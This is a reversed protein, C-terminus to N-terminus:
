YYTLPLTLASTVITFLVVYVVVTFFWNRGIRRSWTRLTASAGSFLLAALLVMSVVQDLVWLLNGSTYYRLATPTAPPVDVRTTEGIPPPTPTRPPAPAPQLVSLAITLAIAAPSM